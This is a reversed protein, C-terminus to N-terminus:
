IKRSSLMNKIRKRRCGESNPRIVNYMMRMLMTDPCGYAIMYDENLVTFDFEIGAPKFVYKQLDIM